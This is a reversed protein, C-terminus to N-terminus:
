RAWPNHRHGARPAPPQLDPASNPPQLASPRMEPAPRSAPTPEPRPFLQPTTFMNWSLASPTKVLPGYHPARDVTRRWWAQHNLDPCCGPNAHYGPGWGIGWSRQWDDFSAADARNSLLSTSALAAILLALLLHPRLHM